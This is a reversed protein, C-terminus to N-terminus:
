GASPCAGVERSSAVAGGSVLAQLLRAATDAGDLDFAAPPPPALRAAAVAAALTPGDLAQEEVVRVLGRAELRRARRLQEDESARGFPVVVAPVGASVVDLATNYGCQSVSVAAQAILVGLDAVARVLTLGPRRAAEQTLRQWVSEPCLPGAVLTMALAHESWLAPQAALAAAFLPAGVVGGGASVVVGARDAGGAPARRPVVFGTHHVPISLPVGPRFSEDITAFAPDAHVFVADLYRNARLCAQDDFGQQDRRSTVLLDRVSSVVRPRGPGADRLRDLIPLIEPAFKKRGFPFMELVIADPRVEDLVRALATRRATLTAEVTTGPDLTALQGDAAMVLPPLDLREVGMPWAAGEPPPGGNVLVVRGRAALAAALASSRVFHGMGLSHQSYVVTTLVGRAPPADHM